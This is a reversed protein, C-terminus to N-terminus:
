IMGTQLQLLNQKEKLDKILTLLQLKLQKQKLKHHHILQQIDSTEEEKESSSSECLSRLCTKIEKTEEEPFPLSNDVRQRKKPTGTPSYVDSEISINELMRKYATKTIFGRRYDWSHILSETTQKLPDSIQVKQQLKDPVIYSEQEKPDAVQDDHMQPGGWKFTFIAKYPLEWTSARDNELRPLFPGSKVFNNITEVQHECTPYWTQSETDTVYSDYPNKGLLFNYDIIPFFQRKPDAPKPLIYPSKVVFMHIPMFSTHKIKVIFSYLGYFMLWLPYGAFVLNDETPQDYHGKQVSVLYIFNDKGDDIEPNYRAAGLPLNYIHTQKGSVTIKYSNIVNPSFFGKDRSVSYYYQEQTTLEQPPSFQYTGTKGGYRWYFTVNTDFTAIPKYFGEHYQAWLSDQYFQPNIYYVTIIQNESKYSIKPYNISCAAAQLQLLDFMCFQKTFFWKTIMQKPPKVNIVIKNKGQPHNHKSLIVKKHQGLLLAMPHCNMYTEKTLM